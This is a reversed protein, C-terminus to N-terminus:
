RIELVKRSVVSRSISSVLGLLIFNSLLSSGGYSVFPLSIGVIPLFAANMAINIFFQSLILFFAVSCFLKCFSDESKSFILFIRFLVFAFCLLVVIAGIFGLEEALTAFIFDTHREPLFKLGSQTGQGFGRGALMGAGIAISSQIANYSTGLPDSPHLFTLIRQKQYQHLFGWVFPTSAIFVVISVFFLRLPFGFFILTLIIVIIYILANGLDPQFFILMAIPLTLCITLFSLKLSFNNKKTLFSAVAIALFPKILESFQVRFGFIDFWRVAGRSEFGFFLVLLLLLISLIYIPLSYHKIVRYDVQTFFLFVFVSLGLFLLQSKFLAFDISFITALSLTILVFVPAILVWDLSGLFSRNM